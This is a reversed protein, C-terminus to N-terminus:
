SEKSKAIANIQDAPYELLTKLTALVQRKGHQVLITNPDTASFDYWGCIQELFKMTEKGTPGDFTNHLTSQLAKVQDLRTLDIM